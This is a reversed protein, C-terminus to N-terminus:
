KRWVFGPNDEMLSRFSRERSLVIVEVRGTGIATTLAIRRQVSALVLKRGATAPGTKVIFDCAGYPPYLIRVPPTRLNHAGVAVPVQPMNKFPLPKGAFVRAM